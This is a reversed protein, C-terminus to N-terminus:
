KATTVAEQVRGAEGMVLSWMSILMVCPRLQEPAAGDGGNGAICAKVDPELLALAKRADGADMAADFEPSTQIVDVDVVVPAADQATLVAAALALPYLMM